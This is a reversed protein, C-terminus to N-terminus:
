ADQDAVAHLQLVDRLDARPRSASASNVRRRVQCEVILEDVIGAVVAVPPRGVHEGAAKM